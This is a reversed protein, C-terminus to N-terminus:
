HSHFSSQYLLDYYTMVRESFNMPQLPLFERLDKWAQPNKGQQLASSQADKLSGQGANYAALALAIRERDAVWKPQLDLLFRFYRAGGWISQEPDRRDQIGVHEATDETLMMLGRVGTHSRAQHNWHSEQFSIAALLQWPIQHESSAERFLSEYKKLEQDISDFFLNLDAATLKTLPREYRDRVRFLTGDQSIKQNWYHLAQLLQPDKRSVLFKLSPSLSLEKTLRMESFRRLEARAEDKETLICFSKAARLSGKILQELSLKSTSLWTWNRSKIEQRLKPSDHPEAVVLGLKEASMGEPCILWLASEKYSPGAWVPARISGSRHLAALDSTGTAVSEQAQDQTRFVTWEVKLGAARAFDNILDAELGQTRGLQKQYTWLGQVTAVKLQRRDKLLLQLGRQDASFRGCGHIGGALLFIPTLAFIRTLLSKNLM